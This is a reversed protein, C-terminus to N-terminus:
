KPHSDIHCLIALQVSNIATIRAYIETTAAFTAFSMQSHDIRSLEAQPMTLKDEFGGQYASNRISWGGEKAPGAAAGTASVLADLLWAYAAEAQKRNSYRSRCQLTRAWDGPPVATEMIMCSEAGPISATVAYGQGSSASFPAETDDGLANNDVRQSSRVRYFQFQAEAVLKEVAAKFEAPPIPQGWKPQSGFALGALM